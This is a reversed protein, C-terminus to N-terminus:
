FLFTLKSKFIVLGFSFIFGWVIAWILMNFIIEQPKGGTLIAILTGLIPSFLLPTFFCIGQLGRQQKIKVIFRNRRTFVRRKKSLRRLYTQFSVGSLTIISVSTMMGAVTLLWIEIPHLGLSIGMIPGFIFKVCSALYTSLYKGLVM